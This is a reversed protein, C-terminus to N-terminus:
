AAKKYVTDYAKEIDVGKEIMEKITQAKHLAEAFDSLPKVLSHLVTVTSNEQHLEFGNKLANTSM